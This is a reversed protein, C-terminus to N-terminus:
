PIWVLDQCRTSWVLDQCRTRIHKHFECSKVDIIMNISDVTRPMLSWARMYIILKWSEVGTGTDLITSKDEQYTYRRKKPVGNNMWFFSWWKPLQTTQEQFFSENEQYVYTRKFMSSPAIMQHIVKAAGNKQSFFIWQGAPLVEKQGYVYCDDQLLLNM